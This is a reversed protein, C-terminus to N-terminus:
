GFYTVLTVQLLVACLSFSFIMRVKMNQIRPYHVFLKTQVKSLSNDSQLYCPIFQM